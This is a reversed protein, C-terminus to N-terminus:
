MCSVSKMGSMLGSVIVRLQPVGKIFTLLRFLRLLRLAGVTSGDASDLFCYSLVVISFDFCNFVAESKDIFYHHPSYGYAVVKLVIELTFVILTFLATVTTFELVGRSPEPNELDVGTSIGVLLINLLIFGEFWNQRVINDFVWWAIREYRDPSDDGGHLLARRTASKTLKVEEEPEAEEPLRDAFEKLWPEVDGKGAGDKIAARTKAIERKYAVTAANMAVAVAAM